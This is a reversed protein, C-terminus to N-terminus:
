RERRRISLALERREVARNKNAASYMDLDAFHGRWLGLGGGGLFLISGDPGIGISGGGEQMWWYSLPLPLAILASSWEVSGDEALVGLEEKSAWRALMLAWPFSDTKLSGTNSNVWYTHRQNGRNCLILADDFKSKDDSWKKNRSDWVWTDMGCTLAAPMESREVMPLADALPSPLPRKNQLLRLKMSEAIAITRTTDKLRLTWTGVALFGPEPVTPLCSEGDLLLQRLRILEHQAIPGCLRATASGEPTTSMIMREGLAFEQYPSTHKQIPRLWGSAFLVRLVMWPPFSAAEAASHARTKIEDFPLTTRQQFRTSLAEALWGFMKQVRENRVGTQNSTLVSPSRKLRLLRQPPAQPSQTKPRVIPLNSLGASYGDCLWAQPETLQKPPTASAAPIVTVKTVASVPSLTTDLRYECIGSTSLDTLDSPPIRFGDEHPELNGNAIVDGNASKLEYSGSISGRLRVEPSAAPNLLVANGYRAAGVIRLRDPRWAPLLLKQNSSPLEAAIQELNARCIKPIYLVAWQNGSGTDPSLMELGLHNATARIATKQSRCAIFAVPGDDCYDGESSLRNFKDPFLAICGARLARALKLRAFKSNKKGLNILPSISDDLSDGCWICTYPERSRQLPLGETLNATLAGHEDTLIALEPALPDVLDLEVCFRGNETNFQKELAFGIDRIAGWLPSNFAEEDRRNTVLEHFILAEDRFSHSFDNLRTFIAQEVEQFSSTDSIGREGVIERLRKEDSFMPFALRKSHGILKENRPDPLILRACDGLTQARRESWRAFEQWMTPLEGFTFTALEEMGLMIAFRQRFVGEESTSDDGSAALLTLYLAAFSSPISKTQTLSLSLGRYRQRISSVDQGFSSLFQQKATELGTIGSVKELLRGTADIRSVTSGTREPDLFIATVLADNWEPLQM